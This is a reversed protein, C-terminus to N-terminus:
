AQHGDDTHRLPADAADVRTLTSEPARRSRIARAGLLLTMRAQLDPYM